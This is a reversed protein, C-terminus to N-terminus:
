LLPALAERTIKGEVVPVVEFEVVEQWDAIWKQFLTVDNAEMLQFCRSLDATVYSSVFTLGDPLARGSDRLKRYVAKGDQNKFKEIVMFLM